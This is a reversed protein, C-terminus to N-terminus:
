TVILRQGRIKDVVRPGHQVGERHCTALWRRWRRWSRRWRRRKWWSRGRRRAPLATMHVVCVATSPVDATCLLAICRRSLAAIFSRARATAVSSRVATHKLTPQTDDLLKLEHGLCYRDATCYLRGHCSLAGNILSLCTRACVEAKSAVVLRQREITEAAFKKM